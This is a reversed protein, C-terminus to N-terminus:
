QYENWVEVEYSYISQAKAIFVIRTTTLSVMSSIKKFKYFVLIFKEITNIRHTWKLNLDITIGLYEITNM